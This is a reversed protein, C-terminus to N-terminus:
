QEPEVLEINIKSIKVPGGDPGSIETRQLDTWGHNKLWFITGAANSGGLREEWHSELKTRIAKVCDVFEPKSAYNLLSQRSNFGLALALGNVTYPREKDDCNAFYAAARSSFEEASQIQLPRGGAM